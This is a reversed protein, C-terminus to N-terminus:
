AHERTAIKKKKGITALVDLATKMAPPNAHVTDDIVTIGDKLRYINHEKTQKTTNNYTNSEFVDWKERIISSLFTKVTTKGASGTIAIIPKEGNLLM